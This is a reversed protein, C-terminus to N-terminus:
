VSRVTVDEPRLVVDPNSVTITRREGALLDFHNDSFRTWGHPVILHAFLTYAPAQLTVELTHPDRQTVSVELKVDRPRRLDKIAAFFLRNDPFAGSASRVRLAHGPTPAPWTSPLTWVEHSANSGVEVDVSATVAEGSILDVLSVTVTERIAELRENSIWLEVNGEGLDKFSAVAPAYARRTYFWSAKAFGNYDMLSWSVCPWCDNYQWILSGSCHPMRRRFHEIAFKLGEAQM